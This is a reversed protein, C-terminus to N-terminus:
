NQSGLLNKDNLFKPKRAFNRSGRPDPMKKLALMGSRIYFIPIFANIFIVFYFSSYVLFILIINKILYGSGFKDNPDALLAAFICCDTVSHGM